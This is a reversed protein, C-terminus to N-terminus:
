SIILHANITSYALINWQEFAMLWIKLDRKPIKYEKVPFPDENYFRIHLTEEM